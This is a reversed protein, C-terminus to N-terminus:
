NLYKNANNITKTIGKKIANLRKEFIELEDEDHLVFWNFEKTEPNQESIVFLPDEKDHRFSKLITRIQQWITLQTYKNQKNWWNINNTNNLIALVIETKNVGHLRGKRNNFLKRLKEKMDNYSITTQKSM